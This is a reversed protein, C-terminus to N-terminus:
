MKPIPAWADSKKLIGWTARINLWVQLMSGLPHSIVSFINIREEAEPGM